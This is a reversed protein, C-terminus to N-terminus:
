QERGLRRIAAQLERLTELYMGGPDERGGEIFLHKVLGGLRRLENIAEHTVVSRVPYGLATSRVFESPSRADTSEVKELILAKEDETLRVSLHKDRHIRAQSSTPSAM